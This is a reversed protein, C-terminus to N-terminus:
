EVETQALKALAKNIDDKIKKLDEADDIDDVQEEIEPIKTQSGLPADHSARGGSPRHVADPVVDTKPKAANSIETGDKPMPQEKKPKVEVNIIRAKPMPKIERVKPLQPGKPASGTGPRGAKSPTQFQMGASVEPSAADQMGAPIGLPVAVSMRASAADRRISEDPPSVQVHMRANSELLKVRTETMSASLEHIREDLRSLKEDVRAMLDGVGGGIEKSSGTHKLRQIKIQIAEMQHQYKVLLGDRQSKTLGSDTEYLRAITKTLIDREIELHRTEETIHPVDPTRNSKSAIRIAVAATAVGALSGLIIAIDQM